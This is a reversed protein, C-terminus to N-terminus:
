LKEKSNERRASVSFNGTRDKIANWKIRWKNEHREKRRNQRRRRWKFSNFLLLKICVCWIYVCQILTCLFFVNEAFFIWMKLKGEIEDWRTLSSFWLINNFKHCKTQVAMLNIKNEIEVKLKLIISVENCEDVGRTTLQKGFTFKESNRRLYKSM